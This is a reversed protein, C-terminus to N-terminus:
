KKDNEADESAQKRDKWWRKVKPTLKYIGYGVAAAAIVSVSVILTIKGAKKWKAILKETEIAAQESAARRALFEVDACAREAAQAAYRAARIAKLKERVESILESTVNLVEKISDDFTRTTWYRNYFDYGGTGRHFNKEVAYQLAKETLSYDGPTGTLFGLKLLVLNMEEATLGYEKGLIRASMQM